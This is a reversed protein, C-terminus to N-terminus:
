RILSLLQAETLGQEVAYQKIALKQKAIDLETKAPFRITKFDELCVCVITKEKNRIFRKYIIHPCATSRSPSQICQEPVNSQAFALSTNTALLAFFAHYFLTSKKM